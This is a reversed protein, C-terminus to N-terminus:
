KLLHLDASCYPTYVLGLPNYRILLELRLDKIIKGVRQGSGNKPILRMFFAEGFETALHTHVPIETGIIGSAYAKVFPAMLTSLDKPKMDVTHCGNLFVLGKSNKWRFNLEELETPLLSENDGIQLYPNMYQDYKGHCFFYMLQPEAPNAEPDLALIIKKHSDLSQFQMNRMNKIHDPTKTILENALPMKFVPVDKIKVETALDSFAKKGGPQTPQEIIHKFGWFGYPCVITKDNHQLTKPDRHKCLKVGEGYPLPKRDKGFFSLCVDRVRDPDIVLDYMLAWPWIDEMTKLRAVQIIQEKKLAKKMEDMIPEMLDREEATPVAGTGFVADYLMSGAAALKILDNKFRKVPDVATPTNDSKFRYIKKKERTDEDIEEDFSVEILAKRANSLAHEIKETLRRSLASTNGKVNLTHSGDPTQNIGIWLNRTPLKEANLFQASFVMEINARQLETSTESQMSVKTSVRLSQLLHNKYFVCVRLQAIGTELPTVSFYLKKTPKGQVLRLKQSNKPIQFDNSFLTVDLTIGKGKTEPFLQEIREQSPFPYAEELITRNDFPAIQIRVWIAQDKVLTLHRAILSRDSRKYTFWLNIFRNIVEKEEATIRKSKKIEEIEMEESELQLSEEVEPEGLPPLAPRLAKKIVRPELGASVANIHQALKLLWGVKAQDETLIEFSRMAKTLDPVAEVPDESTYTAEIILSLAELAKAMLLGDRMEMIPGLFKPLISRFEQLLRLPGVRKNRYLEEEPPLKVWVGIANVLALLGEAKKEELVAELAKQFVHNWMSFLDDWDKQTWRIGRRGGRSEGWPSLIQILSTLVKERETAPVLPGLSRLLLIVPVKVMSLSMPINLSDVITGPLTEWDRRGTIGMLKDFHDQRETM